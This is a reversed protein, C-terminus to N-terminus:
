LSACAERSKLFCSGSMGALAEVGASHALLQLLAAPARAVWWSYVSIPISSAVCHKQPPSALAGQPFTFSALIPSSRHPLL